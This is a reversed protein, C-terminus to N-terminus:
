MFQEFTPYLYCKRGQSNEFKCIYDKTKSRGVGPLYESSVEFFGMRTLEAAKTTQFENM